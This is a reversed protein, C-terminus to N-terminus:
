RGDEMKETYVQVVALESGYEGDERTQARSPNKRSKRSSEGRYKM